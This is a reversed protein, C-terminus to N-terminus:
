QAPKIKKLYKVIYKGLPDFEINIRTGVRWENINTNEFTYPIIAVKLWGSGEQAVTLSIGNLAVSGKHIVYSDNEPEFGITIEWSGGVDEVAKVIGFTDVHGQVIHGDMLTPAQVSKELNVKDGPKWENLNSVM